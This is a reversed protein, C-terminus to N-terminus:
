SEAVCLNLNANGHLSGIFMEEDGRISLQEGVRETIREKIMATRQWRSGQCNKCSMQPMRHVTATRSGCDSCQYFRKKADIIKIPHGEKKCRDASSFATYRCKLCVVAKCDIEFTSLMKEEMAEKKLQKSFYKEQAENAHEVILDSHSSSTEMIKQIREKRFKEADDTLKQKKIESPDRSIMGTNARKKGEVTGRYKIFNPNSKEIPKKKLVALAKAKALESKKASAPLDISFSSRSLTPTRMPTALKNELKSALPAPEKEVNNSTKNAHLAELQKLRELDKLRQSINADVGAAIKSSVPKNYNVASSVVSHVAFTDEPTPQQEFLRELRNNDNATLVRASQNQERLMELRRNDKAIQKPNKKAPVALFSQGGYFVESKGLVKNRLADLGRGSTASQLESRTSMKSYEQKVHYVCHECAGLNVIAHCMDGNKKRSRCTGLDKSQGLVMFKQPNDVSLCAEDTKDQKSDLVGPNLVAIVMGLVFRHFHDFHNVM